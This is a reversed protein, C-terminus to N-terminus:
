TTYSMIKSHIMVKEAEFLVTATPEGNDTEQRYSRIVQYIKDRFGQDELFCNNLRWLAQGRM